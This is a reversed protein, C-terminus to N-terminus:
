GGTLEEVVQFSLQRLEPSSLRHAARAARVVEMSRENGIDRLAEIAARRLLPDAITEATVRMKSADVEHDKGCVINECLPRLWKEIEVDRLKSYM